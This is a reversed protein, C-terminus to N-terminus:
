RGLLMEGCEQNDEVHWSTMNVATVEEAIIERSDYPYTKSVRRWYSSEAVIEITSPSQYRGYNYLWDRDAVHDFEKAHEMDLSGVVEGVM